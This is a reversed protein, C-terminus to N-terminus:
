VKKEPTKINFFAWIEKWTMGKYNDKGFKQELQFKQRETLIM